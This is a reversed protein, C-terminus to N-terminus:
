GVQGREISLINLRNALCCEHGATDRGDGKSGSQLGNACHRELVTVVQCIDLNRVVNLGYLRLSKIATSFKSGDSETLRGM